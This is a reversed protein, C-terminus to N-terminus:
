HKNHLYHYSISSCNSPSDHIASQSYFRISCVTKHKASM